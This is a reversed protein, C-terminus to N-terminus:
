DIVRRAPYRQRKNSLIFSVPDTTAITNWLLTKKMNLKKKMASSASKHTDSLIEEKDAKQKHQVWIVPKSTPFPKQFAVSFVFFPSVIKDDFGKRQASRGVSSRIVKRAGHDWSDFFCSCILYPHRTLVERKKKIIKKEEWLEWLRYENEVDAGKPQCCLTFFDMRALCVIDHRYVSHEKENWSNTSSSALSTTRDTQSVNRKEKYREKTKNMRHISHGSHSNPKLHCQMVFPISSCRVEM